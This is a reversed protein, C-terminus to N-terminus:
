NNSKLSKVHFNGVLKGVLAYFFSSDYKIIGKNYRPKYTKNRFKHQRTKLGVHRGIGGRLCLNM